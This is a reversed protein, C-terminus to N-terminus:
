GCYNNLLVQVMERDMFRHHLPDDYFPCLAAVWNNSPPATAPMSSVVAGGGAGGGRTLIYGDKEGAATGADYELLFKSAGTVMSWGDLLLIRGGDPRHRPCVHPVAVGGAFTRGSDTDSRIDSTGQGVDSKLADHTQRLAQAAAEMAGRAYINSKDVARNIADMSRYRWHKANYRYRRFHPQNQCVPTTLHWM